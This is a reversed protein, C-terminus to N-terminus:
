LQAHWAMDSCSYKRETLLCKSKAGPALCGQQETGGHPVGRRAKCLLCFFKPKASYLEEHKYQFSSCTEGGRGQVEQNTYSCGARESASWTSITKQLLLGQWCPKLGPIAQLFLLPPVWSERQIIQHCFSLTTLTFPSM